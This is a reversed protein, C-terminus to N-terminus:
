RNMQKTAQSLKDMNKAYVEEPTWCLQLGVLVFDPIEFGSGLGQVTVVVVMIRLEERAREEIALNMFIVCLGCLDQSRVLECQAISFALTATNANLFISRMGSTM